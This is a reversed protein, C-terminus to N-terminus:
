CHLHEVLRPEGHVRVRLAHGSARFEEGNAFVLSLGVVGQRELPAPLSILREGDLRVEGDALKGICGQTSSAFAVGSISLEVAGIHAARRHVRAASFKVTAQGNSTDIASVESDQLTILLPPQTM